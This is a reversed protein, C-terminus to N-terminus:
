QHVIEFVFDINQDRDAVITFGLKPGNSGTLFPGHRVGPLM